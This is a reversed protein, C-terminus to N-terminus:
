KVYIITLIYIKYFCRHFTFYKNRDCTAIDIQWVTANWFNPARTSNNFFVRIVTNHIYPDYTIVNSHEALWSILQNITIMDIQRKKRCSHPLRQDLYLDIYDDINKRLFIVAFAESGNSLQFESLSFLIM